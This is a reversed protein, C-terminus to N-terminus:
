THIKSSAKVVQVECIEPSSVPLAFTSESAHSWLQHAPRVATSQTCVVADQKGEAIYFYFFIFFQQYHTHVGSWKRFCKIRQVSFSYKGAPFYIMM